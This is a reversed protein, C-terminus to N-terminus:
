WLKSVIPLIRRYAINKLRSINENYKKLEREHCKSLLPKGYKKPNINQDYFRFMMGSSIREALGSAFGSPSTYKKRYLTIVTTTQVKLNGNILHRM